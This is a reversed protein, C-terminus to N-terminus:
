WKGPVGGCQPAASTMLIPRGTRAAVARAQELEGFWQIGPARTRTTEARTATNQGPGQSRVLTPALALSAAALTVPALISSPRKM